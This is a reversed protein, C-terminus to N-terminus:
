LAVELDMLTASFSLRLENNLKRNENRGMAGLIVNDISPKLVVFVHYGNKEGGLTLIHHSV